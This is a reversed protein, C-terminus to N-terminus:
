MEAELENIADEYSITKTNNALIQTARIVDIKDYVNMEELNANPDISLLKNDLLKELLPKMSILSDNDLTIIINLFEKQLESM